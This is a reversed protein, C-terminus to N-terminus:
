APLFQDAGPVQVYSQFVLHLDVTDVDRALREAHFLFEDGKSLFMITQHQEPVDFM